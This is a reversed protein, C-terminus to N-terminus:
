RYTNRPRGPVASTVFSRRRGNSLGGITLMGVGATYKRETLKQDFRWYSCFGETM